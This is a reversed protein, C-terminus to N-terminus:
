YGLSLGLAKAKGQSLQWLSRQVSPSPMQALSPPIDASTLGIEQFFYTPIFAEASWEARGGVRWRRYPLRCAESQWASSNSHSIFHKLNECMQYETDRIAIFLVSCKVM